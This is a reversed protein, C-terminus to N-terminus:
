RGSPAPEPQARMGSLAVRLAARGDPLSAHGVVRFTLEVVRGQLYQGYKADIPRGYVLCIREDHDGPAALELWAGDSAAGVGVVYATLRLLGNPLTADSTISVRELSRFASEPALPAVPRCAAVALLLVVVGRAWQTRM